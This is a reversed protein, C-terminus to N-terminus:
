AAKKLQGSATFRNNLSKRTHEFRKILQEDTGKFSIITQRACHACGKQARYSDMECSLCSSLDIMMLSFALADPHTEPLGTLSDILTAWAKSRLNRLSPILNPTFLLNYRQYVQPLNSTM